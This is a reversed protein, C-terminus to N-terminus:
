NVPVIRYTQNTAGEVNEWLHIRTGDQTNGGLVCLLYGNTTVINVCGDGADVINFRQSDLNEFTRQVINANNVEAGDVTLAKGSHNAIIVYKDEYKAIDFIQSAVDSKGVLIAQAGDEVSSQAINICSNENIIPVITYKGNPIEVNVLNVPTSPLVPAVVPPRVNMTNAPILSFMQSPDVGNGGNWLHIRTGNSPNGGEVGFYYGDSTIINIYGEINEVINFLQNEENAFSKQVINIANAQVGDVTLAKGSHKAIIAYRDGYKVFNFRQDDGDFQEWIVTQTGDEVGSAEIGLSSYNNVFPVIRYEGEYNAERNYFDLTQFVIILAQERTANSLPSIETESMGNIIGCQNVYTLSELAWSSITNYDSFRTLDNTIQPNDFHRIVNMIMTAMQERTVNNEPAFQTPSMGSVIGLANAKIIDEDNTDEFPSVSVEPIEGGLAGYLKVALKCFEARTISKQYDNLIEDYTLGADYASTIGPKAWESAGNLYSQQAFTPIMNLMMSGALLASFVRKKM